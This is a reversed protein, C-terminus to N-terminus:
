QSLLQDIIQEETMVPAMPQANPGFIQNKFSVAARRIKSASAATPEGRSNLQVDKIKVANMRGRAFLIIEITGSTPNAAATITPTTVTETTSDEGLEALIEPPLNQNTSSQPTILRTQFDQMSALQQGDDSVMAKELIQLVSTWGKWGGSSITGSSTGGGTSECGALLILSFSFLALKSFIKM